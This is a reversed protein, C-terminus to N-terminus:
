VNTLTSVDSNLVNMMEKALTRATEPSSALLVPVLMHFSLTTVDSILVVLESNKKFLRCTKMKLPCRGLVFIKCHGNM